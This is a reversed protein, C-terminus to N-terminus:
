DRIEFGMLPNWTWVRQAIRRLDAKDMLAPDLSQHAIWFDLIDKLKYGTYLRTCRGTNGHQKVRYLCDYRRGHNDWATITLEGSHGPRNGTRPDGSYDVRAVTRTDLGHEHDFTNANRWSWRVRWLWSRAQADDAPHDSLNPNIWGDDGNIGYNFDEYYRLLGPLRNASQPVFAFVLPATILLFADLLTRLLLYSM